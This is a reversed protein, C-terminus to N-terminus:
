GGLRRTDETWRAGLMRNVIVGPMGVLVGDPDALYYGDAYIATPAQLLVPRTPLAFVCRNKGFPGPVGVLANSSPDIIQDTHDDRLLTPRTSLPRLQDM